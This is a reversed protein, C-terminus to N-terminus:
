VLHEEGSIHKTITVISTEERRSEESGGATRGRKKPQNRAKDGTAAFSAVLWIPLGGCASGKSGAIRGPPCTYAFALRALPTAPDCKLTALLGSYNCIIM